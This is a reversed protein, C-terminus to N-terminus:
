QQAERLIENFEELPIIKICEWTIAVTPGGHHEACLTGARAVELDLGLGKAMAQEFKRTDLTAVARPM